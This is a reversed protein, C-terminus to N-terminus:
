FNLFNKLMDHMTQIISSMMKTYTDFRTYANTYKQGRAQLADEVRSFQSDFGAKWVNYETISMSNNKELMGKQMSMIQSLDPIVCFSGDGGSSLTNEHLCNASDLGLKQCIDMADSKSLGGSPASGAIAMENKPTNLIEVLAKSLSGWEVKMRNEGDASVWNALDTMINTLKQYLATYKELAKAYDELNENKDTISSALEQWVEGLNQSKSEGVLQALEPSLKQEAFQAIIPSLEDIVETQSFGDESKIVALRANESSLFDNIEQLSEKLNAEKESNAKRLGIVKDLPIIAKENTRVYIDRMEESLSKVKSGVSQLKKLKKQLEDTESNTENLSESTKRDTALEQTPFYFKEFTYNPHISLMSIPGIKAFCHFFLFLRSICEGATSFASWLM